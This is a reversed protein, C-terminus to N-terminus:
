FYSIYIAAKGHYTTFIDEIPTKSLLDLYKGDQPQLIAIISGDKETIVIWANELDSNRTLRGYTLRHEAKQQDLYKFLETAKCYQLLQMGTAIETQASGLIENSKVSIAHIVEVEDNVVLKVTYTGPTSYSYELVNLSNSKKGDGLDWLVSLVSIDGYAPNFLVKLNDVQYSFDVHFLYSFDLKIQKQVTIKRQMALESIEPDSAVISPDISLNVQFEEIKHSPQGDYFFNCKGDTIALQDFGLSPIEIQLGPPQAKGAFLLEVPKTKSTVTPIVISSIVIDNLITHLKNEMWLQMNGVGQNDSFARTVNYSMLYAKYYSYLYGSEGNNEMKKASAVIGLIKEITEDEQAKFNSKKLYAFMYILNDKRYEYYSINKLYLNTSVSVNREIYSNNAGDTEIERNNISGQVFSIIQHGIDLKLNQRLVDRKQTKKRLESPKISTEDWWYQDQSMKISRVFEATEQDQKNVTYVDVAMILIAILILVRKM